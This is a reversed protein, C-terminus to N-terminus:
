NTINNHRSTPSVSFVVLIGATIDRSQALIHFTHRGFLFLNELLQVAVKM